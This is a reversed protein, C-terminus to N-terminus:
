YSIDKRLGIEPAVSVETAGPPLIIELEVNDAHVNKIAHEVPVWVVYQDNSGQLLRKAATAPIEYSLDFETKWGGLMPFRPKIEVLTNGSERRAHSTSVNGIVDRYHINFADGPVIADVSLLTHGVPFPSKDKGSYKVHVFPVRNFEGKLAAARNVLEIEEKVSIAAGWHSVEVTKKVNALHPLPPGYAFHLRIKSLTSSKLIDKRKSSDIQGTSLKTSDTESSVSLLESPSSSILVKAALSIDTKESDTEYPSSVLTNLKLVVAQSEMEFTEAPFPVLQNGRVISVKITNTKESDLAPSDIKFRGGLINSSSLKATEGNVDVTLLGINKADDVILEYKGSDGGKLKEVSFLITEDVVNRKVHVRRSVAKNHWKGDAFAFASMLVVVARLM